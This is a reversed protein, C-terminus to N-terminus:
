CRTVSIQRTGGDESTVTVTTQSRQCDLSHPPEPPVIFTQLPAEETYDRGYYYPATSVYGGYLPWNRFSGRHQSRFGGRHQSRFGGQHPSHFGGRHAGSGGGGSQAAVEFPALLLMASSLAVPVSAFYSKAM